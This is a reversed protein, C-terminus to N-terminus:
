GRSAESQKIARNHRQRGRDQRPVPDQDARRHGRLATSWQHEEIHDIGQLTSEALLAFVRRALDDAAGDLLKKWDGSSVVVAVTQKPSAM